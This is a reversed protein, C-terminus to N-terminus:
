DKKDKKTKKTKKSNEIKEKSEDQFEDEEDDQPAKPPKPEELYLAFGAATIELAREDPVEIEEGIHHIIKTDKDRYTNIVKIKM